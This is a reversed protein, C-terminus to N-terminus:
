GEQLLRRGRSPEDQEAAQQSNPLAEQLLSYVRLASQGSPAGTACPPAGTLSQAERTSTVKSREKLAFCSIQKKKARWSFLQM